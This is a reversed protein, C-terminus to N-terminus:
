TNGVPWHQSPALAGQVRTEAPSSGAIHFLEPHTPNPLVRLATCPRHGLAAMRRPGREAGAPVKDMPGRPWKIAISLKLIFLWCSNKPPGCIDQSTEKM